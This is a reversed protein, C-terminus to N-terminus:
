HCIIFFNSFYHRYPMEKNSIIQIPIMNSMYKGIGVDNCIKNLCIKGVESCIDNLYIKILRVRKM